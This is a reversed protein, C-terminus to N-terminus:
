RDIQESIEQAREQALRETFPGVVPRDAVRPPITEPYPVQPAEIALSDQVRSQLASIDQLRDREPQPRDFLPSHRVAGFVGGALAGAIGVGAMYAVGYLPAALVAGGLTMGAGASIAAVAGLVLGAWMGVRLGRGSWTFVKQQYPRHDAM